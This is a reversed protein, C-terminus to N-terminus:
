PTADLKGTPDSSGRIRPPTWVGGGGVWAVSLFTEMRIGFFFMSGLGSDNVLLVLFLLWLAELYLILFSRALTRLALLEFHLKCVLYASDVRKKTARALHANPLDTRFLGLIYVNCYRVIRGQAFVGPISLEAARSVHAKGHEKRQRNQLESNANAKQSIRKRVRVEHFEPKFTTEGECSYRPLITSLNGLGRALSRQRCMPTCNDVGNSGAGHRLTESTPLPTPRM